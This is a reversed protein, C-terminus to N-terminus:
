FGRIKYQKRKNKKINEEKLSFTVPISYQGPPTDWDVEMIFQLNVHQNISNSSFLPIDELTLSKYSNHSQNALKWKVKNIPLKHGNSQIFFDDAKISLIWHYDTEIEIEFPSIYNFDAEVYGRNLDDVSIETFYIKHQSVRFETFVISIIIFLIPSYIKTM